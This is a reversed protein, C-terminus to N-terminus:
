NLNDDDPDLAQMLAAVARAKEWLKRRQYSGHLNRLMRTAFTHPTAPGFMDRTIPADGSMGIVEVDEEELVCGGKFPDLLIRGRAPPRRFAVVFHGRLPVRAGLPTLKVPAV